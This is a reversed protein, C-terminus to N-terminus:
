RTAAYIVAGGILAPGWPFPKKVQTYVIAEANFPTAAEQDPLADLMADVEDLGQQVSAQAEQAMAPGYLMIVLPDIGAPNHPLQAAAADYQEKLYEATEFDGAHHLEASYLALDHMTQKRIEADFGGPPIQVAIAAAEQAAIAAAEQASRRVTRKMEEIEMGMDSTTNIAELGVSIVQMGPLPIFGIATIGLDIANKLWPNKEMAKRLWKPKTLAKRLAKPPTMAKQIVEKLKKSPTFARELKERAGKPITFARKVAKKIDKFLGAMEYPYPEYTQM